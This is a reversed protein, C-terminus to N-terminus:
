GIVRLPSLGHCMWGNMRLRRMHRHGAGADQALSGDPVVARVREEPDVDLVGADPVVTLFRLLMKADIRGLPDAEDREGGVLILDDGAELRAEGPEVEPRARHLGDDRGVLVLRVVADVVPMHPRVARDIEAGHVVLLLGFRAGEPAPVALLQGLEMGADDDGVPRGEAGVPAKEVGGIRHLLRDVGEIGLAAPDALRAGEGPELLGPAMRVAHRDVRLAMDPDAVPAARADGAECRVSRDLADHRDRGRLDRFAGETPRIQGREVDGGGSDAVVRMEVQHRPMEELDLGAADAAQLGMM